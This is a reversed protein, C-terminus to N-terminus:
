SSVDEDRLAATANGGGNLEEEDEEDTDADERQKGKANSEPRYEKGFLLSELRREEDDKEADNDIYPVSGLPNEEKEQRRQKKRTHRAM